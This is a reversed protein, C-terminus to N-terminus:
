ILGETFRRRAVHDSILGRARTLTRRWQERDGTGLAQRVQDDLVLSVEFLAESRYTGREVLHLNVLHESM